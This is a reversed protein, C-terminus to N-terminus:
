DNGSAENKLVGAMTGFVRSKWDGFPLQRQYSFAAQLVLLTAPAAVRVLPAVSLRRTFLAWALLLLGAELALDVASHQYLNLGFTPGNPWTPKHTGTLLDAPWHSAYTAGILAAGRGDRRFVWWAAAALAAGLCVSLLSHTWLAILPRPWAAMRFPLELWDPAYAAAVLAPLAVRSRVGPASARALLALALHGTFM